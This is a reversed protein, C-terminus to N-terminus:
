VHKRSHTKRKTKRKNKRKRKGGHLGKSENSINAPATPDNDHANLPNYSNPSLQSLTNIFDSFLGGKFKRKLTRAM